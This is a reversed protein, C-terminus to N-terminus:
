GPPWTMFRGGLLHFHIHYVTQGGDNGCNSVIRYGKEDIGESKALEKAVMYAHSVVHKNNENLDLLTPIHEKPVILIHVPAQPNIDRFAVVLNDEYVINSSIEKNIIKCFICDSM